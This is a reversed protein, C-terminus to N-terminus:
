LTNYIQKGELFSLNESYIQFLKASGFIPVTIYALDPKKFIGFLDKELPSIFNQLVRKSYFSNYSQKIKRRLFM